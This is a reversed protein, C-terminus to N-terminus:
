STPATSEIASMTALYGGRTVGTWNSGKHPSDVNAHRFSPWQGAARTMITMGLPMLMGGGLGQLVRFVLEHIEALHEYGVEPCTATPKM